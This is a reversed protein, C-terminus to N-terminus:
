FYGLAHVRAEKGTVLAGVRVSGARAESKVWVPRPDLLGRGLEIAGGFFAACIPVLLLARGLAQSDM